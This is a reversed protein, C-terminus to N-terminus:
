IIDMSVCSKSDHPHNTAALSCAPNIDAALSLYHYITLIRSHTCLSDPFDVSKSPSNLFLLLECDCWTATGLVGVERGVGGWRAVSGWRDTGWRVLGEWGV